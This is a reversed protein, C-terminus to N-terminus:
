PEAFLFSGCGDAFGRVLLHKRMRRCVRASLSIEAPKLVSDAFGGVYMNFVRSGAVEADTQLGACGLSDSKRTRMFHRLFVSEAARM